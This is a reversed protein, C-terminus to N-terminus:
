IDIKKLSDTISHNKDSGDPCNTKEYKFMHSDEFHDIDKLGQYFWGNNHWFSIKMEPVKNRRVYDELKYITITEHSTESAYRRDIERVCTNPHYTPKFTDDSCSSIIFLATYFASVNKM